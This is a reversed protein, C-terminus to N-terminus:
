KETKTRKCDRVYVMASTSSGTEASGFSNHSGCTHSNSCDIRNTIAQLNDANDRSAEYQRKMGGSLFKSTQALDKM